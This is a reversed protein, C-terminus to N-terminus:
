PLLINSTSKLEDVGRTLLNTLKVSESEVTVFEENGRKTRWVGVLYSATKEAYGLFIGKSFKSSLKPRLTEPQNYVYCLVGFRRFKHIMGMFKSASKKVSINAKVSECVEHRGSFNIAEDVEHVDDHINFEHEIMENTHVRVNERKDHDEFDYVNGADPWRHECPGYQGDFESRTTLHDIKRDNVQFVVEDDCRKHERYLDGNEDECVDMPRYGSDVPGPKMRETRREMRRAHRVDLPSLDKAWNLRAYNRRPVRNWNYAFYNAAHDWVTRDVGQLIARLGEGLTQKVPQLHSRREREFRLHKQYRHQRADHTQVSQVQEVQVREQLPVHLRDLAVDGLEQRRAGRRAVLEHRRVREFGQQFLEHVLEHVIARSRLHDRHAYVRDPFNAQPARQHHM